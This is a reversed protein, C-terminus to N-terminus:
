RRRVKKECPYEANQCVADSCPMDGALQMGQCLKKVRHLPDRHDVSPESPNLVAFQLNVRRLAPYLPKNSLDLRITLFEEMSSCMEVADEEHCEISIIEIPSSSFALLTRLVMHTPLLPMLHLHQLHQLATNQDGEFSTHVYLTRIQCHEAVNNLIRETCIKNYEQTEYGCSGLDLLELACAPQTSTWLRDGLHTETLRLERLTPIRLLSPLSLESGLVPHDDIDEDGLVLPIYPYISLLEPAHILSRTVGDVVLQRLNPVSAAVSVVCRESLPMLAEPAINVIRLSRLNWLKAFCPIIQKGPSGYVQLTLHQISRCRNLLLVILDTQTPVPHSTDSPRFSAHLHRVHTCYRTPVQSFFSIVHDHGDLKVNRFITPVTLARTDKNILSLSKLEPSTLLDAIALRMEVPLYHFM